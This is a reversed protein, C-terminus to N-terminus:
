PAGSVARERRVKRRFHERIGAFGAGGARGDPGRVPRARAPVLTVVVMIVRALLRAPGGVVDDLM